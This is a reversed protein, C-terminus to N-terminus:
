LSVPRWLAKRHTGSFEARGYTLCHCQNLGRKRVIGAVVRDVNESPWEKQCFKAFALGSGFIQVRVFLLELALILAPRNVQALLIDQVHALTILFGLFEHLRPLLFGLPEDVGFGRAVSGLVDPFQASIRGEIHPFYPLHTWGHAVHVAAGQAHGGRHKPTSLSTPAILDAAPIHVNKPRPVRIADGFSSRHRGFESDRELFALRPLTVPKRYEYGFGNFNRRPSHGTL